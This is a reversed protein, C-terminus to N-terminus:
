KERIDHRREAHLASHRRLSSGLCTKLFASGDSVTCAVLGVIGKAEIHEIWSLNGRGSSSRTDHITHQTIDVIVRLATYVSESVDVVSVFLSTKSHQQADVATANEVCPCAAVDGGLTNTIGVHVLQRCSHGYATVSHTHNRKSVTRLTHKLVLLHIACDAADVEILVVLRMNDPSCLFTNNEAEAITHLHHLLHTHVDRLYM